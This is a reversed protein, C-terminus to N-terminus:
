AAAGHVRGKGLEEPYISRLAYIKAPTSIGRNQSLVHLTRCRSLLMQQLPKLTHGALIRPLVFM